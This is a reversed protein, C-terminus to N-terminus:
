AKSANYPKWKSTKTRIASIVYENEFPGFITFSKVLWVATRCVLTILPKYDLLVYVSMVSNTGYLVPSHQSLWTTPFPSAVVGVFSFPTLPFCQLSKQDINPNIVLFSTSPLPVFEQSRPHLFGNWYIRSRPTHRADDDIKQEMKYKPSSPSSKRDVGDM